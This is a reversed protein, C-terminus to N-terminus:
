IKEVNKLRLFTYFLINNLNLLLAIVILQQYYNLPLDYFIHLLTLAFISGHLIIICVSTIISILQTITYLHTCM